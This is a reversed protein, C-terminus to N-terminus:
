YERIALYLFYVLRHLVIVSNQILFDPLFLFYGVVICTKPFNTLRIDVFMVVFFYTSVPTGITVMM